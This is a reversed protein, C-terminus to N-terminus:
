KDLMDLFQAEDLVQVGLENAKDLKSGAEAGAIVYDTKKSVSGTIKGGAEEIMAKADDRPISLTGTLVVIKGAFPGTAAKAADLMRSKFGDDGWPRRAFGVLSSGAPLRRELALNYLAPVLKRHTLDGTAGFIVVVCPEASLETWLGERLPNTTAIM